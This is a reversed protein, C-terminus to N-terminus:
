QALHDVFTDSHGRACPYLLLSNSTCFLQEERGSREPVAVTECPKEMFM